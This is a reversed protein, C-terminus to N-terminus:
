NDEGEPPRRLEDDPKPESRLEQHLSRLFDVLNKQQELRSIPFSESDPIPKGIIELQERTLELVVRGNQDSYWEFYPYAVYDRPPLGATMDGVKGTQLLSFRQMYDIAECVDTSGDADGRFRIKAGRIDRHFEGELDLTVRGEIGLYRMWGTVKGRVTNDLEGEILYRTPRWAM